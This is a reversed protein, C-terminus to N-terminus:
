DSRVLADEELHFFLCEYPHIDEMFAGWGPTSGQLVELTIMLIKDVKVVMKKPLNVTPM